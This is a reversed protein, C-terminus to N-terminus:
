NVRQRLGPPSLQGTNPYLHVASSKFGQGQKSCFFGLICVRKLLSKSSIIYGTYSLSTLFWVRDLPVDRYLGYLPTGGPDFDILPNIRVM